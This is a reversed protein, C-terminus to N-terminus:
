NGKKIRKPCKDRMEDSYEQPMMVGPIYCDIGAQEATQKALDYALGAIRVLNLTDCDIRSIKGAGRLDSIDKGSLEFLKGSNKIIYAEKGLDDAFWEALNILSWLQRELKLIDAENITVQRAM